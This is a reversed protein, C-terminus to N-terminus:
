LSWELPESSVCAVSYDCVDYGGFVFLSENHVVGVHCFRHSPQDSVRSRVPRRLSSFFYILDFLGDLFTVVAIKMGLCVYWKAPSTSNPPPFQLEHLDNMASGASGGFVYMSNAHIVSVHSDRPIPAPGETILASWTKTDFDFLHTDSLHRTGDHGGHLILFNTHTVATARYRARPRRGVAPVATWQSQSFDFEHLDSRVV